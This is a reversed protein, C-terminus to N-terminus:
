LDVEVWIAAHDSAAQEESKLTPLMQWPDHSGPPHWVGKRDVGGAQIKGFLAPSLFLYDIKENGTGFTGEREGWQWNASDASADELDTETALLQLPESDPTDNFDGLVVVNKWGEQRRENYIKALREAQERRRKASASQSGYGKSKFHNVMLLLPEGAADIEYEACDRSFIRGGDGDLDDVHSRMNAIPFGERAFLGVDIGRDDNGDILMVHAFGAAAGESVKLVDENFRILAPRDEAEVVALVDPAMEAIVAATNRTAQEDVAERKLELWGIWDGRGEAVVEAHGDKHMTVLKGRSRRLVVWKNEETYTGKEIDLLDLKGLLDLILQKDTDGYADKQLLEALAAFAELIPKGDDWNRQNLAVARRFMNEVNFCAIKM